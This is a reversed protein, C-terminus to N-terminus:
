EQKEEMSITLTPSQSSLSGLFRILKTKKVSDEQTKVLRLPGTPKIKPSGETEIGRSKDVRDKM